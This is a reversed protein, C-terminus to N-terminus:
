FDIQGLGSGIKSWTEENISINQSLPNEYPCSQVNCPWIAPKGGCSDWENIGCVGCKSVVEGFNRKAMM